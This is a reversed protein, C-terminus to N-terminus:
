MALRIASERRDRNNFILFHICRTVREVWKIDLGAFSNEAVFQESRDSNYRYVLERVMQRVLLKPIILILTNVRVINQLIHFIDAIILSFYFNKCTPIILLRRCRIWRKLINKSKALKHFVNNFKLIISLFTRLFIWLM